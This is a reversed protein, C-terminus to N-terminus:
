FSSFITIRQYTTIVITCFVRSLNTNAEGDFIYPCNFTSLFKQRKYFRIAMELDKPLPFFQSRIPEPIVVQSVGILKLYEMWEVFQSLLSNDIFKVWLLRKSLTRFIKNESNIKPFTMKIDCLCRM